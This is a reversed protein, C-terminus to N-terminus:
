ECKVELEQEGKNVQGMKAWVRIDILEEILKIEVCPEYLNEDMCVVFPKSKEFSYGVETVKIVDGIEINRFRDGIEIDKDDLVDHDATFLCWGDAIGQSLFDTVEKRKPDNASAFGIVITNRYSRNM